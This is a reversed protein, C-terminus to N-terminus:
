AHSGVAADLADRCLQAVIMWANPRVGEGGPRDETDEHERAEELVDRLAEVLAPAAAHLRRHAELQVASCAPYSIVLAVRPLKGAEFAVDCTEGITTASM